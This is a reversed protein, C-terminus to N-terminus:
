AGSGCDEFEIVLDTLDKLNSFLTLSGNFDLFEYQKKDFYIDIMNQLQITM